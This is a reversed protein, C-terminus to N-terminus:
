YYEEIEIIAGDRDVSFYLTKSTFLLNEKFFSHGEELIHTNGNDFDDEDFAYTVYSLKTSPKTNFKLANLNEQLQYAYKTGSVLPDSNYLKVDRALGADVKLRDGVIGAIADGTANTIRMLGQVVRFITSSSPGSM